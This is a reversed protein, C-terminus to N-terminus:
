RAVSLALPVATIILRQWTTGPPWCTQLVLKEQEFDIKLFDTESAAVVQKATVRYVYLDQHYFLNVQDGLELEKLLYFSAEFGAVRWLYDISHGFLYITGGQGPFFSGAAHAVGSKLAGQYAKKDWVSVDAAIASNLNIKPVVISFQSDVPQFWELDLQRRSDAFEAQLSDVAPKPRAALNRAWGRTELILLPLLFFLLGGASVTLLFHALFKSWNFAARQRIHWVKSKELALPLCVEGALPFGDRYIIVEKIM